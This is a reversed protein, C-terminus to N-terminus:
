EIDDWLIRERLSLSEMRTILATVRDDIESNSGAYSPLTDEMERRLKLLLSLFAPWSEKVTSSTNSSSRSSRGSSRPTSFSNPVIRNTASSSASASNSARESSDDKPPEEDEDDETHWESDWEDGHGYPVNGSFGRGHTEGGEIEGEENEDFESAGGSESDSTGDVAREPLGPIIARCTPCTNNEALWSAICAAHYWHKCPLYMRDALNPVDDMCIACDYPVTAM